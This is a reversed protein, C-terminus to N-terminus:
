AVPLVFWEPASLALTLIDLHPSQLDGMKEKEVARGMEREDRMKADVEWM